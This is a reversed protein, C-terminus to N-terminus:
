PKPMTVTIPAPRPLPVPSEYTEISSITSYNIVETSPKGNLNLSIANNFTVSTADYSVLKGERRTDGPVNDFRGKLLVNNGEGIAVLKEQATGSEMILVGIVSFSVLFYGSKRKTEGTM